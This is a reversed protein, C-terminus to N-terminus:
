DERQLEPQCVHYYGCSRCEWTSGEAPMLEGENIKAVVDDLTDTIARWADADREVVFYKHADKDKNYYDFVIHTADLCFAYVSAQVVHKKMPSGLTWSSASASKAEYILRIVEGTKNETITILGDASGAINYKQALETDTIRVEDAFTFAYADDDVAGNYVKTMWGQLMDHIAHGHQFIRRLKPDIRHMPEQCVYAYSLKRRCGGFSSPHFKGDVDRAQIISNISELHADIRGEPDLIKRIETTTKM